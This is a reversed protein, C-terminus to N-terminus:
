KWWEQVALLIGSDSRLAHRKALARETYLYAKGQQCSEDRVVTHVFKLSQEKMLLM